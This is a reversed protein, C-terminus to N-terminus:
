RSPQGAPCGVSPDITRAADFILLPLERAPLDLLREDDVLYTTTALDTQWQVTAGPTPALDPQGFVIAQSLRASLPCAIRGRWGPEPVLFSWSALKADPLCALGCRTGPPLPPEGKAYGDFRVPDEGSAPAGMGRCVSWPVYVQAKAVCPSPAGPVAADGSRHLGVPRLVESAPEPGVTPAGPGPSTPEAAPSPAASAAWALATLVLRWRV